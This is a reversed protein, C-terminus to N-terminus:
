AANRAGRIAATYREVLEDIHEDVRRPARANAALEQARAPDRLETIAAALGAADGPEVLRGNEGDRVFDPIGGIRSGIVPRGASLGEFVTQPSTDPGVPTVLVVDAESLLRRLGDDTYRGGFVAAGPARQELEAQYWEYGGGAFVVRPPDELETLADIVVGGGKNPVLGGLFLFSVPAGGASPLDMRPIRDASGSGIHVVEVRDPEVGVEVLVDRVSGSVALVQACDRNAMEVMGALRRRFPAAPDAGGAAPESWASPPRSMAKTAARLARLGIEGPTNTLRARLKFRAPDVPEVNAPCEEQTAYTCCNTGDRHVLVRRQCVLGFDHVSLLVPAIGAFGAVADAPLGILSHVHIVDPNLEAARAVLLETDPSHLDAEPDAGHFGVSDGNVLGHYEIAGRRERVWRPRMRWDYRGFPGGTFLYVIDLGRAALGDAVPLSYRPIGARVDPDESVFLVRM